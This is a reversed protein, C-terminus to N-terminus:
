CARGLALGQDADGTLLRLMAGPPPQVQATLALHAQSIMHGRLHQAVQRALGVDGINTVFAQKQEARLRLRALNEALMLGSLQELDNRTSWVEDLARAIVKQADAAQGSSSLRVDALSRFGSATEVGLGLHAPKMSNLRIVIAEGEAAGMRFVLPQQAVIVRGVLHGEPGEGPEAALGLRVVQEPPARNGGGSPLSGSFRVTVGDTTRNGACGTLLQGEGFAPEGNISGGVDGGNSVLRPRGDPLSFVGPVSSRLTFGHAGGHRLHRILLRGEPTCNVLVELGGQQARLQLAGAIAECPEGPAPEHVARREGAEISLRLPPAPGARAPPLEVVAQARQAPRSIWVPFGEPPSSRARPSASVFELGDGFAMGTCGLGGDFLRLKGFRESDVLQEIRERVEMLKRQRASWDTKGGPAEALSIAQRTEEEILALWESIRSLGAEAATVIAGATETAEIAQAIAAVEARFQEPLWAEEVWDHGPAEHDQLAAPPPRAAGKRRPLPRRDPTYPRGPGNITMSM